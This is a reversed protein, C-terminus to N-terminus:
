DSGAEGLFDKLEKIVAVGPLASLSDLAANLAGKFRRFIWRRVRGGGTRGARAVEMVEGRGSQELVELKFARLSGTWAVQELIALVLSIPFSRNEGDMTALALPFHETQAQALAERYLDALEDSVVPVQEEEETLLSSDSGGSWDLLQIADAILERVAAVDEETAPM